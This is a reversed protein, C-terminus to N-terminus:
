KKAQQKRTEDAYRVFHLLPMSSLNYHLNYKM